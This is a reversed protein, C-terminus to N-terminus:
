VWYKYTRLARRYWGRESVKKFASICKLQLYYNKLELETM